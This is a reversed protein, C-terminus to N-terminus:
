LTRDFTLRIDTGDESVEASQLVPAAPRGQDLDVVRVTVEEGDSWSLGPNDWRFFTGSYCLGNSTRKAGKLPFRNGEILVAVDYWKLDAMGKRDFQVHLKNGKVLQVRRVEYDRDRFTFGSRTISGSGSYIRDTYYGKGRCKSPGAAVTVTACLLDNDECGTGHVTSSNHARLGSFSPADFGDLDQVAAEDDGGTPDRYDM